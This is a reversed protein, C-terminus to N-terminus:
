RKMRSARLAEQLLSHDQVEQAYLDQAAKSTELLDLASEVLPEPWRRLDPGFEALNNKLEELTM